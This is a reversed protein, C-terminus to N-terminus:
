DFISEWEVRRMILEGEQKNTLPGPLIIRSNHKVDTCRQKRMDLSLDDQDFVMRSKVAELEAIEEIRQKEDADM